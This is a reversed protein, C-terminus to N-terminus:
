NPLQTTAFGADTTTGRGVRGPAVLGLEGFMGPATLMVLVNEPMATCLRNPGGM